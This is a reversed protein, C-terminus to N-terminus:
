RHTTVHLYLRPTTKTLTHQRAASPWSPIYGRVVANEPFMDSLHHDIILSKTDDGDVVPPAARSGQDAVIIFKPEKARMALREAEDHVTAEKGILHVDILDPRLGLYTLTKWLIVGADLGDADKDPVILTRANSEASHDAKILKPNMASLQFDNGHFGVM